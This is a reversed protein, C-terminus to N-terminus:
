LLQQRHKLKLSGFGSPLCPCGDDDAEVTLDPFNNKNNNAGDSVEGDASLSKAVM